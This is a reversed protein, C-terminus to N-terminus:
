TTGSTSATVSSAENTGGDIPPVNTSSVTSSTEGANALVPAVTNSRATGRADASPSDKSGAINGGLHATSTGLAPATNTTARSEASMVSSRGTHGGTQFLQAFNRELQHM